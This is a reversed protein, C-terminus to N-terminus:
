PLKFDDLGARIKEMLESFTNGHQEMVNWYM